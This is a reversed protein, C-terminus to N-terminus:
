TGWGVFHWLLHSQLHTDVFLFPVVNHIKFIFFAIEISEGFYMFALGYFLLNFFGLRFIDYELDPRVESETWHYNIPGTLGVDLNLSYMFQM